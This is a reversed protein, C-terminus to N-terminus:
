KQKKFGKKCDARAEKKEALKKAHAAVKQEFQEKEVIEKILVNFEQGKMMYDPYAMHHNQYEDLIIRVYEGCM